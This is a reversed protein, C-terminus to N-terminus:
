NQTIKYYFTVNRQSTSKNNVKLIFYERTIEKVLYSLDFEDDASICYLTQLLPTQDYVHNYQVTVLQSENGKLTLDFKNIISVIQNKLDKKLNNSAKYAKLNIQNQTKINLPPGQQPMNPFVQVGGHIAPSIPLAKESM